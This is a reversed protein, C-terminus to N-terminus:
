YSSARAPAFPETRQRIDYYLLPLTTDNLLQSLAKRVSWAYRMAALGATPAIIVADVMDVLEGEWPHRAIDLVIDNFRWDKEAAIGKRADDRCNAPARSPRYGQCTGHPMHADQMAILEGWSDPPFATCCSKMASPSGLLRCDSQAHVGGRQDCWEARPPCGPVCCGPERCSIGDGGWTACNYSMSAIDRWGLCNLRKQTAYSPKLVLGPLDWWDPGCMGRCRFLDPHRYNVLTASVRDNHAASIRPQGHVRWFHRLPDDNRPTGHDFGSGSIGGAELVRILVGATHMGHSASAAVWRRNLESATRRYRISTASPARAQRRLRGQWMTTPPEPSRLPPGSRGHGALLEAPETAHRMSLRTRDRRQSATLSAHRSLGYIAASPTPAAAALNTAAASSAFAEWAARQRYASPSTSRNTFSVAAPRATDDAPALLLGLGMTSPWIAGNSTFELWRDRELNAKVDAWFRPVGGGQFAGVDFDAIDHFMMHRCIPAFLEYDRRVGDYTHDADIFCLDIPKRRSLRYWAHSLDSRLISTINNARLIASAANSVHGLDTDVAWGGFHAPPVFRRLFTSLLSATWGTWIGVELYTRIRQKEPLRAFYLMAHVLQEPSQYVGADADQANRMHKVMGPGYLQEGRRDNALGLRLVLGELFDQSGLQSCSATALVYACECLSRMSDRSYMKCRPLSLSTAPICKVGHRVAPAALVAALM